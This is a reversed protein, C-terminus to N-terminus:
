QTISAKVKRIANKIGEPDYGPLMVVNDQNAGKSPMIVVAPTGRLGLKSFLKFNAAYRANPKFENVNVGAKKASKKVDEKTLKGEDHGTAFIANHYTLYAKSGKESFIWQGMDAAYGSVEWRESFIPTEKFIFKADPNEKIISDFEPSLKACYACQYDFFEIISVDADSPGIFPSKKDKLLADQNDVIAKASAAQQLKMQKLQLNKSAQILIEPHNVIYEAAIKGIEDEQEKNFTSNSAMCNLSILTGLAAAISLSSKKM